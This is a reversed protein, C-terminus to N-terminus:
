DANELADLTSLVTDGVIALSAPSCKDVTDFRTQWYLNLPGYDLDIVEVAPIGLELFALQDDEISRSNKLFYRGYGLRQAQAFVLDTLWPTSYRERQIDLHSNGIMDIVIVAKIQHQAGEDALRRTFHRSGYLGDTESWRGLADEGDFFM